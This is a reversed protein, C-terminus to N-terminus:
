PEAGIEAGIFALFSGLMGIFLSLDETNRGLAM